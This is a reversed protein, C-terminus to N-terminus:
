GRCRWGRRRRPKGFLVLRQSPGRATRAAKSSLRRQSEGRAHGAADRLPVHSRRVVDNGRARAAAQQKGGGVAIRALPILGVPEVDLAVQAALDAPAPMWKHTPLVSACSSASARSRAISLPDRKSAAPSGSGQIVVMPWPGGPQGHAYHPASVFLTSRIAQSTADSGPSRAAALGYGDAVGHHRALRGTVPRSPSRREFQKRTARTHGRGLPRCRGLAPVLSCCHRSRRSRSLPRERAGGQRHCGVRERTGRRSRPRQVSSCTGRRRFLRFDISAM